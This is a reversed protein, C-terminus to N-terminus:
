GARADFRVGCKQRRTAAAEVIANLGWSPPFWYDIREFNPRFLQKIQTRGSLGQVEPHAVRSYKSIECYLNQCDILQLPRGWLGGFELDRRAFATNQEDATFRILDEESYDGPDEFCKRLGDLAGPGPVVVDMESWGFAAGYNVDIAYQFGLFPGITPYALITKYVDALRRAALLKRAIGDKMMHELLGLHNRHKVASGFAGKGSPMIYAGSYIPLKAARRKSLVADWDSAKFGRFSLEGLREELLEWTAILNFLKFAITRFIVEAPAQDGSYIVRRILYQSVRDAARYPNTFKHRQLITDTTWPANEGEFRRQFVLQREAAFRWYTDYVLSPRPKKRAILINAAHPM